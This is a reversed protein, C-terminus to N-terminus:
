QHSQASYLPSIRQAKIMTSSSLVFRVSWSLVGSEELGSLQAALTPLLKYEDSELIPGFAMNFILGPDFRGTVARSTVFQLLATDSFKMASTFQVSSLRPVLNTEDTRWNLSHLLIDTMLARNKCDSIHLEELLPLVALCSILEKDEILAFISLMTLSHHFSSRAALDLFRQQSWEPVDETTRGSFSLRRLGPLTVRDLFIKLLASMRYERGRLLAVTLSSVHAIIPPLDFPLILISPDLSIHSVTDPSLQPLMALTLHNSDLNDYTLKSLSEWPLKPLKPPWGSLSVERLRQAIEFVDDAYPYNADTSSVLSLVRLLPMKGRAGALYTFAKPEVWLRLKEWRHSHKGILDFIQQQVRRPHTSDVAVDLTLPHNGSRELGVELLSLLVAYSASCEDWFCTDFAVTSWLKPTTMTVEHWRSCVQSLNLLYKRAIQDLEAAPTTPHATPACLGFIEALLETPLRRVPSFVSLCGERFWKLSRHTERLRQIEIEYRELEPASKEIFDRLSLAASASPLSHSRLLARLHTFESADPLIHSREFGSPNSERPSM